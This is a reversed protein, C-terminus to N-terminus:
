GTKSDDDPDDSHTNFRFLRKLYDRVRQFYFMFGILAAGLIQALFTGSGPDIYAFAPANIFHGVAIALAIKTWPQNMITDIKTV